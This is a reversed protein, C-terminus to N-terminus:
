RKALMEVQDQFALSKWFESFFDIASMSVIKTDINKKFLKNIQDGILEQDSESVGFATAYCKPSVRKINYRDPSILQMNLRHFAFGIFVLKQASLVCSKIDEIESEAPDTGETFTKIAKSTKLLLQASPVAGFPVGSDPVQGPLPGVSGYPHFIKIQKLLESATQESIGYFEQLANQLFHEICRDYNFIVFAISAFRRELDRIECNETLLQFFPTFWTRSLHSFDPRGSDPTTGFHLSSNGEADLIARVIAMKACVAIKDNGRHSDIFNDISISLPLANRIHLAERIYPSVDGAHLSLAELITPDGNEADVADSHFDLLQCIKDKLEVGTPLNVEKSAGAGIVFVTEITLSHDGLTNM